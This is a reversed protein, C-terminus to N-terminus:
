LSTGERDGGSGVAREMERERDFIERRSIVGMETKNRLGMVLGCHSIGNWFCLICLSM